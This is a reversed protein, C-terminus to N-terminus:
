RGSTFTPADPPQQTKNRADMFAWYDMLAKNIEPKYRSRNVTQGPLATGFNPRPIEKMNRLEAPLKSLLTQRQVEFDDRSNVDLIPTKKMEDLLANTGAASKLLDKVPNPSGQLKAQNLIRARSENSLSNFWRTIGAESAPKGLIKSINNINLGIAEMGTDYARQNQSFKEDIIKQEGARITAKGAAVEALAGLQDRMGPVDLEAGQEAGGFFDGADTLEQIVEPKFSGDPNFKLLEPLRAQISSDLTGVYTPDELRSVDVGASALSQYIEKVQQMIGTGQAGLFNATTEVPTAGVKAKAEERSTQAQELDEWTAKGDLLGSKTLEQQTMNTLAEWREPHVDKSALASTLADTLAKTQVPNKTRQMLELIPPAKLSGTKRLDKWGPMLADMLEPPIASGSAFSAQAKNRERVEKVGAMQAKVPKLLNDWAERNREVYEALGALAPDKKAANLLGPDSLMDAVQGQIFEDSLIEEIRMQKGGVTVTDNDAIQAVLDNAKQATTMAGSFGQERLYRRAAAKEELSAVNNLLIARAQEVQAMKGQVNRSLDQLAQHTTEPDGGLRALAAKDEDSLWDIKVQDPIKEKVFDSIGSVPDLSKNIEDDTIGSEALHVAATSPSLNSGATNFVKQIAPLDHQKAAPGFSIAGTTKDQLVLRNELLAQQIQPDTKALPSDKTIILKDIVPAQPLMTENIKQLAKAPVQKEISGLRDVDAALQETVKEVAGGGRELMAQRKAVEVDATQTKVREPAAGEAVKNTHAAAGSMAAAMPSAGMTMATLPSTTAAVQGTQDEAEALTKQGPLKLLKNNKMQAPTQLMAM